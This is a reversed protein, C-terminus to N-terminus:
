SAPELRAQRRRLAVFAMAGLGLLAAYTSPEPVPTVFGNSDIQAAIGGFNIVSLQGGALGSANTGFRITDSGTSYNLITLTGTWSQGSSNGFAMASAGLGSGFNITSSALLGLPPTFAPSYAGSLSLTGGALTLATSNPLAASDAYALTGGSNITVPGVSTNTNTLALTGGSITTGGSFNNVSGVTLTSTGSKILSGTGSLAVGLTSPTSSEMTLTNSQLLISWTGNVTSITGVSINEIFTASYTGTGSGTGLM